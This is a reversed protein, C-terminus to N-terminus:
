AKKGIFRDLDDLLLGYDGLKRVKKLFNHAKEYRLTLDNFDSDSIIASEALSEISQLENYYIDQKYINMGFFETFQQLSVVRVHEPYDCGSSYQIVNNINDLEQKSVTGYV